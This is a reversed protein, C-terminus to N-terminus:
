SRVLSDIRSVSVFKGIIKKLASPLITWPFVKVDKEINRPKPNPFSMIRKFFDDSDDKGKAVTLPRFGELNRRIRNKEEVTFRVAVLSELLYITDVSTVFAEEREKWWICSICISNPARSELTVPHFSTKITNGSQSRNFEILRRRVKREDETWDKSMSELDGEIRLVARNQPYISYPNFSPSPISTDPAPSQPSQLTSTRILPPNAIGVTSAQRSRTSSQSHGAGSQGHDKLPPSQTKIGAQARSASTSMTLAPPRKNRATRDVEQPQKQKTRPQVKERGERSSYETSGSSESPSIHQPSRRKATNVSVGMESAGKRKHTSELNPGSSQTQIGERFFVEFPVSFISAGSQDEANLFFTNRHHPTNGPVSSSLVHVAYGEVFSALSLAAPVIQSGYAISYSLSRFQTLDQTSRVQVHLEGGPIALPPFYSVVEPAHQLQSPALQAPAYSYGSAQGGYPPLQQSSRQSYAQNM